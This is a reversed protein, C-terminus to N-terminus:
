TSVNNSNKTILRFHLCFLNLFGIKKCDETKFLMRKTLHTQRIKKESNNQFSFAKIQFLLVSPFFLFIKNVALCLRFKVQSLRVGRPKHTNLTYNKQLKKMMLSFAACLMFRIIIQTATKEGRKRSLFSFNHLVLRLAVRRM